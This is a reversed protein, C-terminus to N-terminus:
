GGYYVRRTEDGVITAILNVDDYTVIGPLYGYGRYNGTDMLVREILSAVAERAQTMEDASDRLMKNALALVDAVPITKRKYPMVDGAATVPAVM